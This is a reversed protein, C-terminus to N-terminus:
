EDDIQNVSNVQSQLSLIEMSTRTIFENEMLMENEFIEIRVNM